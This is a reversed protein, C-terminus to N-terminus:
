PIGNTLLLWAERGCVLVTATNCGNPEFYCIRDLDATEELFNPELLFLELDRGAMFEEAMVEAQGRDLARGYFSCFNGIRTDGMLMAMFYEKPSGLFRTLGLEFVPKVLEGQKVVLPGDDDRFYHLNNWGREIDQQLLQQLFEQSRIFLTVEQRLDGGSLRFGLLFTNSNLVKDCADLFEKVVGFIGIEM